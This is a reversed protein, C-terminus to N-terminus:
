AFNREGSINSNCCSAAQEKLVESSEWFQGGPLQSGLQRRIVDLISTLIAKLPGVMDDEFPQSLLATLVEDKVPPTGFVTCNDRLMSQPEESWKTLMNAASEYLNNMELINGGESVVEM